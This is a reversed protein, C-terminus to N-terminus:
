ENQDRIWIIESDEMGPFSQIMAKLSSMCRWCGLFTVSGYDHPLCFSRSYDGDEKGEIVEKCCYVTEPHPNTRPM